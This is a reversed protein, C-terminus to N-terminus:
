LDTFFKPLLDRHAGGAFGDVGNQNFGTYLGAQMNLYMNFKDNKKEINTVREFLTKEGDAGNANGDTGQAMSVTAVLSLVAWLTNKM